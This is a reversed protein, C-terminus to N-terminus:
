PATAALTPKQTPKIGCSFAIGTGSDIEGIPQYSTPVGVITLTKGIATPLVIKLTVATGAYFATEFATRGEDTGLFFGEVTAEDAEIFDGLFEKMQDNNAFSNLDTVDVTGRTMNPPTLKTVSAFTKFTTGDTSISATVGSGTAKSPTANGSM